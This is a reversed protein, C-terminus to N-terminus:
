LFLYMYRLPSIIAGSGVLNMEVVEALLLLLNELNSDYRFTCTDSDELRRLYTIYKHVLDCFISIYTGLSTM